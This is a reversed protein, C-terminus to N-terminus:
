EFHKYEPRLFFNHKTYYHCNIIILICTYQINKLNTFLARVCTSFQFNLSSILSAIVFTNVQVMAFIKKITPVNLKFICWKTGKIRISISITVSLRNDVFTLIRLCLIQCECLVQTSKDLSILGAPM